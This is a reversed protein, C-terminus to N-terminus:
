QEMEEGEREEERYAVEAVWAMGGAQDIGEQEWCRRAVWAGPRRVMKKCLDLIM